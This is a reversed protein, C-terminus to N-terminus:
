ITSVFDQPFSEAVNATALINKAESITKIVNGAKVVINPNITSFNKLMAVTENSIKM